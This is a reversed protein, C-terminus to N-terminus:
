PLRLRLGALVGDETNDHDSGATALRHADADELRAINVELFVPAVRLRTRTRAAITAGLRGGHTSLLGFLRQARRLRQLFDLALTEGLSRRLDGSMQGRHHRLLVDLGVTPQRLQEHFACDVPSRLLERARELHPLLGLVNKAVQGEHRDHAVQAVVVRVLAERLERLLEADVHRLDDVANHRLLLRPRRRSCLGLRIVLPVLLSRGRRLAARATPRRLRHRRRSGAQEPPPMLSRRLRPLASCSGSEATVCVKPKMPLRPTPLVSVATTSASSSSSWRRCTTTMSGTPTHHPSRELASPLFAPWAIRTSPPSCPSRGSSADAPRSTASKTM